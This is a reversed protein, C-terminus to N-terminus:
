TRRFLCSKESSPANIGSVQRQRLPRGAWPCITLGTLKQLAGIPAACSADSGPANTAHQSQSQKAKSARLGPRPRNEYAKRQLVTVNIQGAVFQSQKKLDHETLDGEKPNGNLAESKRHFGPAHSQKAKTERRRPGAFGDYSM